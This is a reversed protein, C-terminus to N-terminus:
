FNTVWTELSWNRDGWDLSVAALYLETELEWLTFQLIGPVLCLNRLVSIMISFNSIVEINM